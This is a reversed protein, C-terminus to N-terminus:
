AYAAPTTYDTSAVLQLAVGNLRNRAGYGERARYFSEELPFEQQEAVLRFGRLQAPIDVRRMLPGPQDLAVGLMYGSPIWRWESVLVDSIAGIIRGPVAPLGGALRATDSGQEVWAPTRDTFATLAETEAREDPHIFVVLEADGYHEELHDRITAYPNNVDSIATALYNSGVYHSHGTLEASAGVLPPFVTGDANVLRRITLDGRLDDAYVENTENLLARLILRRKWNVYRQTIGRVNADLQAATMYAMAVDNIALQDRADDIPYAVDWSGVGKVAGPRSTPQSAQMFGGAPLFARETHDTTEGEVFIEATRNVEAETKALYSNIVEWGARQGATDSFIDTDSMGLAGFITAM